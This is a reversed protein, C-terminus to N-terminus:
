PFVSINSSTSFATLHDRYLKTHYSLSRRPQSTLYHPMTTNILLQTLPTFSWPILKPYYMPAHSITWPHCIFQKYLSHQQRQLIKKEDTKVQERAHCLSDPSQFQNSNHRKRIEETRVKLEKQWTRSTVTWNGVGGVDSGAWQMSLRDDVHQQETCPMWHSKNLLLPEAKVITPLDHCSTCPYGSLIFQVFQTSRHVRWM